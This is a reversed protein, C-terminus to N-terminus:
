PIEQISVNRYLVASSGDGPGRVRFGIRGPPLGDGDPDKGQLLLEGNVKLWVKAEDRGYEVDYWQQETATDTQKDLELPGPNIILFANPQHYGTHFAATYSRVSAERGRWYNFNGDYDNGPDIEEGAVPSASLFVVCIAEHVLPKVQFSVVVRRGYTSPSMLVVGKSGPGETM